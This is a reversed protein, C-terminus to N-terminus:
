LCNKEFIKAVTPIVSIPRYNSPNNRSGNKYVPSVRSAKWEQPFIGTCISASFIATLSPAVVNAAMKLLKNPIKDLGVSKKEDITRLLNYVKDVTPLKLSFRTDTPNLYVGPEYQALPIEDALNKGVNSFYNNFAEAMDAPSTVVQENVIVESIRKPKFASRSSLDNILKWTKKMDGRHLDLNETFYARKAKKIANNIQNRAQRYQGWAEPDNISVAKKKLYDRNFIQRRLDNTIWPSKRNSVRRLRFPAHEDITAMLICKWIEWMKNPDEFCYVNDWHKQELERLFNESNFNKMTRAEIHRVGDRVYHSKRIMYVLSHDSISLHMVGSTVVNTPASTICLDILTSSKATIRTPENILQELGYIDFIEALKGRNSSAATPLFDVNLDGLLFYELNEADMSGIMQEIESFHRVPFDPPRYWTSVLISKSRPKKIEVTLNELIESILDDRIKFNLNCRIYICVGGGNRDNVIRDRRVLEFGPLCVEHDGITSDLKTENICLIDIKTSYMTIRLEDIHALLSNINLCAMVLGHQFPMTYKDPKNLESVGVILEEDNTSALEDVSIISEWKANDWDSKDYIYKTFNRAMVKTGVKNLHIKSRNLENCSINAHDIFKLQKQMCLRKLESNVESVKHTLTVEDARTILGSVAIETNPVSSKISEALKMIEQACRISTERGKLSNTGVHLILKQPNKRPIPRVYDVMDLTTCGPFTSVKVRTDTKSMKFGDLHKVMSDGAIIVNSRTPNTKSTNPQQNNLTQNDTRLLPNQEAPGNEEIFDHRPNISTNNELLKQAAKRRECKTKSKNKGVRTNGVDDKLNHNTVPANNYNDEQLIKIATVLSSKENELCNVKARLEKILTDAAELESRLRKKEAQCTDASCISTAENLDQQELLHMLFKVDKDIRKIQSELESCRYEPNLNSKRILEASNSGMNYREASSDKEVAKSIAMQAAGDTEGDQEGDQGKTLSALNILKETLNGREDDRTVALKQRTRGQWKITYDESTFLKVEGGPSTWNGHLNLDEGVFKKLSKLCGKWFFKNDQYFLNAEKCPTSTM